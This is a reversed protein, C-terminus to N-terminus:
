KILNFLEQRAEPKDRFVGRLESTKMTAHQKSVGRAMM